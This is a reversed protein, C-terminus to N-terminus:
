LEFKLFSQLEEVILVNDPECKTAYIKRMMDRARYRAQTDKKTKGPFLYDAATLCDELSLLRGSYSMFWLVKNQKHRKAVYDAIDKSSSIPNNRKTEIKHLNPLLSTVGEIYLENLDIEKLSNLLGFTGVGKSVCNDTTRSRYEMRYCNTAGFLPDIVGKKQHQEKVKDYFCVEASQTRAYATGDHKIHQSLTNSGAFFVDHYAEIPKSMDIGQRQIDFRNVKASMVDTQIENAALVDLVTTLATNSPNFTISMSRKTDRQERVNVMVANGESNLHYRGGVTNGAHRHITEHLLDGNFDFDNTVIIVKDLAPKTLNM